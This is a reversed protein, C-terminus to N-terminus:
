TSESNRGWGVLTGDSRLAFSHGDGAASIAIVDNLDSPILDLGYGDWGWTVVTGDSKLAM